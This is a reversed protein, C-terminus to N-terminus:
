EYDFDDKAQSERMARNIERAIKKLLPTTYERSPLEFRGDDSIDICEGLSDVYLKAM